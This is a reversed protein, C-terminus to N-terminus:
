PVDSIRRHLATCESCSARHNPSPTGSCQQQALPIRPGSLIGGHHLFDDFYWDGVPAQPSVAALAPHADIMGASAYFGPYSIGAMGVKGNHGPINKVLWDITDWADTSEDIDQSGNKMPLHPRVQEFTGESLFRGRVDQNVFIYGARRSNNPPAL